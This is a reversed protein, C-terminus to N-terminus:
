LTLIKFIFVNNKGTNAHYSQNASSGFTYSHNYNNHAVNASSTMNLMRKSQRLLEDEELENAETDNDSEDHEMRGDLGIHKKAIGNSGFKLIGPELKAIKLEVGDRDEEEDDEDEDEYDDEDEEEDDFSNNNTTTNATVKNKEEALHDSNLVLDEKKSGGFQNFLALKNNSNVNVDKKSSNNAHKKSESAVTSRKKDIRNEQNAKDQDGLQVMLM